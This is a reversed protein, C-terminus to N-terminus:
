RFLRIINLYESHKIIKQKDSWVIYISNLQCQARENYKKDINRTAFM